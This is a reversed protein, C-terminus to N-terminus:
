VKCDMLAENDDKYEYSVKVRLRNDPGVVMEVCYNKIRNVMPFDDYMVSLATVIEKITFIREAM